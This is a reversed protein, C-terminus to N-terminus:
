YIFCADYDQSMPACTGDNCHHSMCSYLGGAVEPCADGVKGLPGCTGIDGSGQCWEGEVYNCLKNTASHPPTMREAMACTDGTKLFPVCIGQECRGDKCQMFSTDEVKWDCAAGAALQGRFAGFCSYLFFFAPPIVCAAGSESMAKLQEVYKDLREHDLVTSGAKLSAKLSPETIDRLCWSARWKQVCEEPTAGANLDHILWYKDTCCAFLAECFPPLATDCFADIEKDEPDKPIGSDATGGTGGAGGTDVGCGAILLWLTASGILASFFRIHM